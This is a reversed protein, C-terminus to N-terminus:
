GGGRPQRRDPVLHGRFGASAHNDADWDKTRQLLDGYTMQEQRYRMGEKTERVSPRSREASGPILWDMIRIGLTDDHRSRIDREKAEMATRAARLNALRKDLDQAEKPLEGAVRPPVGKTQLEADRAFDWESQLHHMTRGNLHVGPDKAAEETANPIFAGFAFQTRANPYHSFQGHAAQPAAFAGLRSYSDGDAM